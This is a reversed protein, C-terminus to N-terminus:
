VESCYDNKLEYERIIKQFRLIILDVDSREHEFCSDSFKYMRLMRILRKFMLIDSVTYNM